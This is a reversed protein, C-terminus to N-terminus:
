DQKYFRWQKSVWPEGAYAIGIRTGTRFKNERGAEEIWIRDSVTLDEGYFTGDIGLARTLKGPGEFGSVGRILAAQPNDSEGAVVNLMWYMGYVFYMYVMGGERYMIETRRTKGKSAHCAIDEDGRYAEVEIIEYKALKGYEERIVLDKGILSPAVELVDRLYFSRILRNSNEQM